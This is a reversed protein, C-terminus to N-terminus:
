WRRSGIHVCLVVTLVPLQIMNESGDDLDVIFTYEVSQEPLGRTRSTFFQGVGGDFGDEGVPIRSLEMYVVLLNEYVLM